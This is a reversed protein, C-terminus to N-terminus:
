EFSTLQRSVMASTMSSGSFASPAISRFRIRIASPTTRLVPRGNNPENLAADFIVPTSVKGICAGDRTQQVLMARQREEIKGGCRLVRCDVHSNALGVALNEDGAANVRAADRRREPEHPEEGVTAGVSGEADHRGAEERADVEADAAVDRHLAVALDHHDALGGAAGEVHGNHADVGIAAEASAALDDDDEKAAGVRCEIDHDFAVALDDDGTRRADAAKGVLERQNAQVGLQACCLCPALHRRTRRM